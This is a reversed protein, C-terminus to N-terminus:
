VENLTKKRDYYRKGLYFFILCLFVCLSVLKCEKMKYPIYKLTIQHKGAPTKVMLCSNLPDETDVEKGDIYAHWSRDYALSFMTYGDQEYDVSGTITDDHFTIDSMKNKSIFEYFEDLLEPKMVLFSYTKELTILQNPFEIQFRAPENQEIDGIGVLEHMYLYVTGSTDSNLNLNLYLNPVPGCVLDVSDYIKQAEDFTLVNGDGDTYFFTNEANTDIDDYAITYIDFLNEKRHTYNKVFANYFIPSYDITNKLQATEVPAYYGIPLLRPNEYVYYSEYNGRYKYYSLDLPTVQTYNKLFIYRNGCLMNGLPSANYNTTSINIGRYFGYLENLTIQHNTVFSNFVGNSPIDYVMGINTILDSPFCIRSLPTDSLLVHHIDDSKTEYDSYFMTGENQFCGFSYLLNASMELCVCLVLINSFLRYQKRRLRMLILLSGYLILLALSIVFATKSLDTGLFLCVTFFVTWIITVAVIKGYSIQRLSIMSDYATEAMLFALLFVYRNPVLSQYHFGNWFYSLIQGNFSICLFLILMIKKFRQKLDRKSTIFYLTVIFLAFISFYLTIEGDNKSISDTYTFIMTKKWQEWFSTHFGFSPFVSDNGTYPSDYTELLTNAISYFGTGAAFVSCVAFRIGKLLFDKFSDFRYTFFLLALFICIYLAIQLSLIISLGLLLTYLLWKNKHMLQDMGLLVLPFLCLVNYWGTFSHMTLMYGNLSYIFAPILLRYDKKCARKARLRHTLYLVMSLGSFGICFGESLMLLAPLQEPRLFRYYFLLNMSPNTASISSGYGANLTLATNGRLLNYYYDLTTPLTIQIGDGDFFTKDGFPMVDRYIMGAMFLLFPIFFSLYYIANKQFHKKLKKPFSLNDVSTWFFDSKQAIKTKDSSFFIFYLVFAGILSILIGTMDFYILNNSTTHESQYKNLLMNIKSLENKPYRYFLIENVSDYDDSTYITTYCPKERTLLSEDLLFDYTSVPTSQFMHYVYNETDLSIDDTNLYFEPVFFDRNDSLSTFYFQYINNGLSTVQLSDEPHFDPSIKVPEFFDSPYGIQKFYINVTEFYNPFCLKSDTLEKLEQPTLTYIDTLASYIEAFGTDTHESCWNLYENKDFTLVPANNAASSDSLDVATHEANMENGTKWLWTTNVSHSAPYIMRMSSIVVNASSEFLIFITCLLLIKKDFQKKQLLFLIAGYLVVFVFIWILVPLYFNHSSGILAGSVICLTCLTGPLITKHTM